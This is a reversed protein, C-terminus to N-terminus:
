SKINNVGIRHLRQNQSKKTNDLINLVCIYSRLPITYHKAVEIVECLMFFM